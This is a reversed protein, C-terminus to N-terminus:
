GDNLGGKMMQHCFKDLCKSLLPPVFALQDGLSYVIERGLISMSQTRCQRLNKMISRQLYSILSRHLVQSCQKDRDRYYEGLDHFGCKWQHLKRFGSAFQDNNYAVVEVPTWSNKSRVFGKEMDDRGRFFFTTILGNM